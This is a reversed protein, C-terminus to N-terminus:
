VDIRVIRRILMFGTIELLVLVGIAAWGQWTTHLARMADPELLYLVVLLLVPLAGVVAGQMRGQSTLASIRAEMTMRSRLLNALRLLSEALNGGLEKHVGLLTSLLRLDALGARDRLGTFGTEISMGLRLQGLVLRLENGLPASQRQAVLGLAQTTGQGARLLGAWLGLADPLQQALRRRWRQQLWRVVIRPALLGIAAVLLAVLVPANCALALLGLAASVLVAALLLQRAPVFVFLMALDRETRLVALDTWGRLLQRMLRLCLCSAAGAGLGGLIAAMLM